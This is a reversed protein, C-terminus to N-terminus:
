LTSQLKGGLDLEIFADTVLHEYESTVEVTTGHSARDVMRSHLDPYDNRLDVTAYESLRFGKFVQAEGGSEDPEVFQICPPEVRGIVVQKYGKTHIVGYGGNQNLSLIIELATKAKDRRKSSAETYDWSLGMGWDVIGIGDETLEACVDQSVAPNNRHFFISPSSDIQLDIKESMM